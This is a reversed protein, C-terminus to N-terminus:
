FPLDDDEADSEPRVVPPSLEKKLDLLFKLYVACLNVALDGYARPIRLPEVGQGHGGVKHRLAPLGQLVSGTIAKQAEEPVGHLLDTEARLRKLLEGATGERQNLLAKLASEFACNAKHIADDADGALLYSRADRFEEHAGLFGERRMDEEVLDRLADLFRSDILYMRGESMRWVSAEEALVANVEAQYPSRRDEALLRYYAELADLVSQPYAFVVFDDFGTAERDGGDSEDQVRLAAKGYAGKLAEM